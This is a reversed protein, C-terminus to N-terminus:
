AVDPIRTQQGQDRNQPHAPPGCRSCNTEYRLTEIFTQGDKSNSCYDCQTDFALHAATDIDLHDKKRQFSSWILFICNKIETIIIHKSWFHTTKSYDKAYLM